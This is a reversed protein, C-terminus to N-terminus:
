KRWKLNMESSNPIVGMFTHAFIDHLNLLWQFMGM